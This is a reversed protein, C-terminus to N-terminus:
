VKWAQLMEAQLLFGAFGRGAAVSALFLWFFLGLSASSLAAETPLSTQVLLLLKKARGSKFIFTPCPQPSGLSGLVSCFMFFGLGLM